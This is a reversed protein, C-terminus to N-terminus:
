FLGSQQRNVLIQPIKLKCELKKNLKEIFYASLLPSEEEVNQHVFFYINKLGNGVWKHLRDVWDDLRSYDNKYNAGVYRIFTTDNTLRMHVMDRRGATDTIVCPIKKDKLLEFLNTNSEKNSYWDPHRFEFTIPIEKPWYEVFHVVRDFDKPAFNQHMQLFVMGLKEELRSVANIYIDVLREADKLRKIHSIDQTVKPFFKFHDPTKEKWKTFQEPPFMRYFTANLEIANFQSSYYVLEDKTGRPYFNKLDTKNWKACGVYINPKKNSKNGELIKKTDPHDKPMTFDVSEPHDVKGFKM